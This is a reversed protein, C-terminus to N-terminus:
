RRQCSLVQTGVMTFTPVVSTLNPLSTLRLRSAHPKEWSSNASRAWTCLEYMLWNSRPTFDGVNPTIQRKAM